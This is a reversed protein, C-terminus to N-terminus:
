NEDVIKRERERKKWKDREKERQTENVRRDYPEFVFVCARRSVFQLFRGVFLFELIMTAFDIIKITNRLYVQYM